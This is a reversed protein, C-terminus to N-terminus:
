AASLGGTHPWGWVKGHLCASDSTEPQCHADACSSFVTIEAGRPPAIASLLNTAVPRPLANLRGAAQAMLRRGHQRSSSNIMGDLCFVASRKVPSLALLSLNWLRVDAWLLWGAETRM